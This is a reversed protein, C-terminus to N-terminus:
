KGFIGALKGARQAVAEAQEVKEMLDKLVPFFADCRDSVQSFAAEFCARAAKNLNANISSKLKEEMTAIFANVYGCIRKEQTVMVGFVVHLALAIMQSIWPRLYETWDIEQKAFDSFVSQPVLNDHSINMSLADSQLSPAHTPWSQIAVLGVNSLLVLLSPLGVAFRFMRSDMVVRMFSVSACLEEIRYQTETILLNLCADIQDECAELPQKLDSPDPIDMQLSSELERMKELAPRQEEAMGM